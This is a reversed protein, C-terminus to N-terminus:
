AHAEALREGARHGLYAELVAPHNRVTEFDGEILKVGHDLAVVRSCIGRVLRMDHEIVVITVGRDRIKVIDAMLEQTETPNMGAAPEDLLLLRPETALARAIELRRRNAYSLSFAAEDRRPALRTGFIGLLEVARAAAARQENRSGPTGLLIRVLGARTRCYMGVMVNQLVSMQNFLRQNQFTRAVGLATVRHPPLRTLEHRESLRVSGSSARFIGSIVNFLTTKGSGNPGIVGVIEGDEVDLDLGQLAHLGGFDKSLRRTQLLPTV